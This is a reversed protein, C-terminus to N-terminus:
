YDFDFSSPVSVLPGETDVDTQEVMRSVETSAENRFASVLTLGIPTDVKNIKSMM